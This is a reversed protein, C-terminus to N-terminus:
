EDEGENQDDDPLSSYLDEMTPLRDVFGTGNEGGVASELEPYQGLDLYKGLAAIRLRRSGLDSSNRVGRAYHRALVWLESSLSPLTLEDPSRLLQTVADSFAELRESLRKRGDRDLPLADVASALVIFLSYFDVKRSWRFRNPWEIVASLEELVKEFILEALERDPFEAEFSEFFKDLNSKKNQPGYISGVVLESVYEIDLMRRIDNSTFLGSTVWFRHKAMESVCTIFEGWYTAQRLEQKNLVVNNRNLRAFIDRIEEQPMEPLTRVLFKYGWILKKHDPNLQDFKLGYLSPNVNEGELAFKGDVFELCARIRQQGDVVVVHQGGDEKINFQLYLEPVPYGRLITDILYSKQHQHWVPNRQFPPSLEIENNTARQWFWNVTQSTFELFKQDM